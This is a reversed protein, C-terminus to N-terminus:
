TAVGLMPMREPQAESEQNRPLRLSMRCGHSYQNDIQVTGGNESVAAHVLSLGMGASRGNEGKTSFFPEFVRSRLERPIGPGTDTVSLLIENLDAKCIISLERDSVDRQDMADLANEILQKLAARLQQSRLFAPPLDSDPRWDVTVGLRLMRETFLALVEGILGNVDVHVPPEATRKPMSSSLLDTVAHGQALADDLAGRLSAPPVGVDLMNRAAQILNLPGQMQFIAGDLAERMAHVREQESLLSLLANRKSVERDKRSQTIEDAVLLLYAREQPGEFYTAPVLESMQFRSISCNFWRSERGEGMDLCVERALVLGTEDLYAQFNDGMESRVINLFQKAPEQRRLDGYLKKYAENDLVVSEKADLLAIVQPAGDVVSEVMTKQNRLAQEMVHFETVDRHIGLFYSTEGKANLVPAITLDALYREGNKRENVLMGNWPRRNRLNSWLTKYVTEPTNKASLASENKGIIEEASYGTVRVFAPNAYLINAKLDTISISIQAQEVAEFFVRPPLLEHGDRILEGVEDLVDSALGAPPNSILTKMVAIVSDSFFNPTSQANSM